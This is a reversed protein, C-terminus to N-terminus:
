GGGTPLFLSLAMGKILFSELTAKEGNITVIIFKQHEKKYGLKTLLNEVTTNEEIEVWEQKQGSHSIIVGTYDVLVKNSM